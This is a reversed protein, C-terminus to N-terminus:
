EGDDKAVLVADGQVVMYGSNRDATNPISECQFNVICNAGVKFAEEQLLQIDLHTVFGMVELIKYTPPVEGSYVLVKASKERIEREEDTEEKEEFFEKICLRTKRSFSSLVSAFVLEGGAAKLKAGCTPCKLKLSKYPVLLIGSECSPCALESTKDSM